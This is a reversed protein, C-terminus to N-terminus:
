PCPATDLREAVQWLQFDGVIDIYGVGISGDPAPLMRGIPRRFTGFGWPGFPQHGSGYDTLGDTSLCAYTWSAPTTDDGISGGGDPSVVVPFFGAEHTVVVDSEVLETEPEILFALESDALRETAPPESAAALEGVGRVNDPQNSQAPELPVQVESLPIGGEFMEDISPLAM